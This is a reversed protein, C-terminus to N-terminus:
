SESEQNASVGTVPLARPNARLLAVDIGQAAALREGALALSHIPDPFQQQALPQGSVADWVRVTSDRSGSVIVERGGARGIAVAHVTRTHGTLPQGVPQGTAADWVQVTSDWGGSVIVERDGARCM